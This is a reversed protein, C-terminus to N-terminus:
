NAAVARMPREDQEKRPDSPNKRALWAVVGVLPTYIALWLLVGTHVAVWSWQWTVLALLAPGFIYAGVAAVLLPGVAVAAAEGRLEREVGVPRLARRWVERTSQATDHLEWRWHRAVVVAFHGLMVVTWLFAYGPLHREVAEGLQPLTKIHPTSVLWVYFVALPLALAAKGAYWVARRLFARAGRSTLTALEGVPDSAHIQAEM